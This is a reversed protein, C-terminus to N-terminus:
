TEPHPNPATPAAPPDPQDGALVYALDAYIKLEHMITRKFARGSADHFRVEATIRTPEGRRFYAASDDLFARITKRPALFELRQFLNLSPIAVRGALGHFEPSFKVTVQFAPHDSVNVVAVFLLGVEFVFDVIVDPGGAVPPSAVDSGVLPTTGILAAIPEDGAPM